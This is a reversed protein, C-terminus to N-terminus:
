DVEPVLRVTFSGDADVSVVELGLTDLTELALENAFDEDDAQQKASLGTGDANPVTGLTEIFLSQLVRMIQLRADAPSQQEM